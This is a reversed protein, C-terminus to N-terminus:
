DNLWRPYRYNKDAVYSIENLKRLGDFALDVPQEVEHLEAEELCLDVSTFHFRAFCHHVAHREGIGIGCPLEVRTDVDDVRYATELANGGRNEGITRFADIGQMRCLRLNDAQEYREVVLEDDLM